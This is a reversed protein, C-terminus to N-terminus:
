ESEIICYMSFIPIIPFALQFSLAVPVILGRRGEGKGQTNMKYKEVKLFLFLDLLSFLLFSFFVLLIFFLFHLSAARLAELKALLCM